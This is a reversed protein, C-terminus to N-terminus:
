LGANELYKKIKKIPIRQRPNKAKVYQYKSYLYGDDGIGGFMMREAAPFAIPPEEDRFDLMVGYEMSRWDDWAGYAVKDNNKIGIQATGDSNLTIIWTKGSEDTAEYTGVDSYSDSKSSDDTLATSHSEETKTEVASYDNKSTDEYNSYKDSGGCSSLVNSSIMIAIFLFLNFLNRM